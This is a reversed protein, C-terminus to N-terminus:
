WGEIVLVADDGAQGLHFFHEGLALLGLLRSFASVCQCSFDRAQELESGFDVVEGTAVLL